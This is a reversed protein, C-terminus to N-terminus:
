CNAHKWSAHRRRIQELQLLYEQWDGNSRGAWGSMRERSLEVLTARRTGRPRGSAVLTGRQWRRGPHSKYASGWIRSDQDVFNYAVEGVAEKWSEFQKVAGEEVVGGLSIAIPYFPVNVCHANKAIKAKAPISLTQQLSAAALDVPPLPQTSRSLRSFDHHTDIYTKQYDRAALSVITLDYQSCGTESTVQIDARDDTDDLVPPENVNTLQPNRSLTSIILRKAQNHRNTTQPIFTRCIEAHRFVNEEGCVCFEAQSPCLTHHHLAASIERNTLSFAKSTPNVNLALRGLLSGNELLFAQQHPSLNSLLNSHRAEVVEAVRARQPKLPITDDIPLDLLPALVRTSSEIAATKAGSRHKKLKQVAAPTGELRVRSVIWEPPTAEILESRNLVIM